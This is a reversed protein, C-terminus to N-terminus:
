LIKGLMFGVAFIILASSIPREKIHQILPEVLDQAPKSIARGNEDLIGTQESM